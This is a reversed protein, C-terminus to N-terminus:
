TFMSPRVALEGGPPTRVSASHAVLPGSDGGPREMVPAVFTVMGSEVCTWDAVDATDKASIYLNKLPLGAAVVSM